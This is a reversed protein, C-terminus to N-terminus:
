VCVVFFKAADDTCTSEEDEDGACLGTFKFIGCFGFVTVAGTATHTATIM